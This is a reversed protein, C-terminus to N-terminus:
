KRAPYVTNVHSPAKMNIPIVGIIAVYLVNSPDSRMSGMNKAKPHPTPEQKNPYSFSIRFAEIVTLTHNLIPISYTPNDIPNASTNPM